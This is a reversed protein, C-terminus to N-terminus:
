NRLKLDLEHRIRMRHQKKSQYLWGSAEVTKGTLSLLDNKSFYNLDDRHIRLAVNNELNIWLSSRSESVHKVKGSIIYFGREAGSLSLTSHTKYRALTWLGSNNNKAELASSSYCEVLSLNPGIRLPIALGQKLIEAQVNLGNKLYIHALTRGHKDLREKGYLLQIQHDKDLLKILFERALEAGADSAKDDQHSIEPTNIGILRIHRGDRLVVTDGDIVYDLYVKEDFYTSVCNSPQNYDSYSYSSFLSFVVLMFFRGFLANKQFLYYFSLDNHRCAMNRASNTLEVLPIWCKRSVPISLIANQACTLIFSVLMHPAPRLPIAVVVNSPLKKM